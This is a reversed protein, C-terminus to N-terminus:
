NTFFGKKNYSFIVTNFDYGQFAKPEIVNSDERDVWESKILYFLLILLIIKM